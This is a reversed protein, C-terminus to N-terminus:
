KKVRKAHIETSHEDEQRNGRVSMISITVM